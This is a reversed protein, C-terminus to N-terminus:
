FPIDDDEMPFFGQVYEEDIPQVPPEQEGPQEEPRPQAEPLNQPEENQANQPATQNQGRGGLFEVESAVVETTYVRLGTKKSIYSGTQVKGFVAVQRGKALYKDCNEATRGFTVVPIYDPINEWEHTEPNKRRDDIAVIFRCIAIKNAGARKFEPDKTLNGIGEFKNMQEKREKGEKRRYKSVARRRGSACCECTLKDITGRWGEEKLEKLFDVQKRESYRTEGCVNCVAKNVNSIGM